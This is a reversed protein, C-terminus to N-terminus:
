GIAGPHFTRACHVIARSEDSPQGPLCITWEGALHVVEASRAPKDPVAVNDPVFVVLHHTQIKLGGM